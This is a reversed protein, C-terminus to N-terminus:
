IGFRGQGISKYSQAKIPSAFKSMDVKKVNV